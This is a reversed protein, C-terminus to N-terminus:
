ANSHLFSRRLLVAEKGRDTLLQQMPTSVEEKSSLRSGSEMSERVIADEAAEWRAACSCLRCEGSGAMPREAVVHGAKCLAPLGNLWRHANVRSGCHIYLAYLVVAPPGHLGTHGDETPAPLYLAAPSDTAALTSACTPTNRLQSQPTDLIVDGSERRCATNDAPQQKSDDSVLAPQVTSLQAASLLLQGDDLQSEILAQSVYDRQATQATSHLTSQKQEEQQAVQHQQVQKEAIAKRLEMQQRLVTSLDMSGKSQTRQPRTQQGDSVARRHSSTDESEVRTQMMNSDKAGSGGRVSQEKEEDVGDQEDSEDIQEQQDKKEELQTRRVEEEGRQRRTMLPVDEEDDDDAINVTEHPHRIVSPKQRRDAADSAKESGKCGHVKCRVGLKSCHKKCRKTSCHLKALLGCEACTYSEPAATLSVAAATRSSSNTTGASHAQKRGGGVTWESQQVDSDSDDDVIVAHRARKGTNHLPPHKENDEKVVAEEEEEDATKEQQRRRLREDRVEENQLGKEMEKRKRQRASGKVVRGEDRVEEEREDHRRQTTQQKHRDKATNHRRSIPADINAHRGGDVSEDNEAEHNSDNDTNTTQKEWM